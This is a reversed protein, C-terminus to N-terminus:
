GGRLRAVLARARPLEGEYYSARPGHGAAEMTAHATEIQALAPEAVALDGTREALTVMAVGMNGTTGAWQLPARERTLEELAARYAAVAEELRATGSEREGLTQLAAGLNTQTMAWDLPARERTQEELAARYASVAEGLRATGSERAGLTSLANGLNNQTTAWDLPVRERTIEELAARYAAVAEELRATGSEREGLTQLSIALDNLAAGREDRDTPRSLCQRAIAISVDLDLNLGKDRARVYWEDQAKRPAEFRAAPDPTELDVIRAVWAAASAADRRLLDQNLGARALTVGQEVVAQRREEEEAQWQAFSDKAVEAAEDFNSERSLAAVQKLVRDVFDGANSGQRGERQVEIAVEVARELERKAQDFDEVDAAIRRALEIIERERM